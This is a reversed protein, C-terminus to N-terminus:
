QRPFESDLDVTQLFPLVLSEGADIGTQPSTLAIRQLLCQLRRAVLNAFQQHSYVAWRSSAAKALPLNLGTTCCNGQSWGATASDRTQAM